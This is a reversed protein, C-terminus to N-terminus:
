LYANGPFPKDEEFEKDCRYLIIAVNEHTNRDTVFGTYMIEANSERMESLKDATRDAFGKIEEKSKRRLVCTKVDRM